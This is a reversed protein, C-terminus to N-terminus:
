LLFFFFFLLLFHRRSVQIDPLNVFLVTVTRIAAMYSKVTDAKGGSLTSRVTEPCYTIMNKSFESRNAVDFHPKPPFITVLHQQDVSGIVWCGNNTQKGGNIFNSVYDWAKSSVVVSKTQAVEITPAIQHLPEGAVLFETRFDNGVHIAYMDGIGIGVRNSM